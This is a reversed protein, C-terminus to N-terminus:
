DPSDLPGAAEPVGQSAEVCTALLAKRDVPKTLYGSCGAALCRGRDEAMAHATLAIIPLGFGERRLTKAASYGDLVPMQMDMLIM